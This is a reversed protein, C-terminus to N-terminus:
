GWMRETNSLPPDQNRYRMTLQPKVGGRRDGFIRSSMSTIRLTVVMYWRISRWCEQPQTCPLRQCCWMMLLIAGTRLGLISSPPSLLVSAKPMVYTTIAMMYVSMKPNSSVSRYRLRSANQMCILFMLITKAATEISWMYRVSTRSAYGHFPSYGQEASNQTM